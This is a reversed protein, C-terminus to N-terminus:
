GGVPGTRRPRGRWCGAEIALAWPTHVRAGMPSLICVRWDGLEDRFREIVITRDDPVASTEAQEDVYNVLNQPPASTSASSTACRRSRRIPTPRACSAPSAGSRGASSWPGAPAPVGELLCSGHEGPAPTVVVQDRTIDEIRWSSAGLLFVEGRAVRVRM